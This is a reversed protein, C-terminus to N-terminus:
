SNCGLLEPIVHNSEVVYNVVAPDFNQKDEFVTHKKMPPWSSLRGGLGCKEGPKTALTAIFLLLPLEHPRTHNTVSCIACPPQNHFSPRVRNQGEKEKDGHGATYGAFVQARIM